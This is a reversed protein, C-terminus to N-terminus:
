SVTASNDPSRPRRRPVQDSTGALSKAPSRSRSVSIWGSLFKWLRRLSISDGGVSMRVERGCGAVDCGDRKLVAVVDVAAAIAPVLGDDADERGGAECEEEEM